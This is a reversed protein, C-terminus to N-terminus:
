EELLSVAREAIAVIAEEDDTFDAAGSRGDWREQATVEVLVGEVRALVTVRSSKEDGGELHHSLVAEDGFELERSDLVELAWYGEDEGDLLRGSEAEYEEEADSVTRLPERDEDVPLRYELRLFGETGDSFEAGWGCSSSIASFSAYPLTASVSDLEAASAVGCSETPLGEFEPGSVSGGGGGALVAGAAGAVLVYAGLTVAMTIAVVRGTSRPPRAPPAPPPHPFRAEPGHYM